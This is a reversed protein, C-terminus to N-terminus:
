KAGVTARINGLHENVHNILIGEIVQAATMPPGGLLPASRDLESDSLGRVTGSASAANTKFLALTDAKTVNASEKAHKANGDHIMDMTLGPLAEGKAVKQVLGAIGACGGAVHHAVIGVSWKEGATEKKWEADNLKEVVATFERCSQDFKNALQEARAGM